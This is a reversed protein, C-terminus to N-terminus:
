CAGREKSPIVKVWFSCGSAGSDDNTYSFPVHYMGDPPIIVPYPLITNAYPSSGDLGIIIIESITLSLTTSPNSVPIVFNITEGIPIDFALLPISNVPANPYNEPVTDNSGNVGVSVLPLYSSLIVNSGNIEQSFTFKLEARSTVMDNNVASVEIVTTDGPDLIIGITVASISFTAPTYGGEARSEGDFEVSILTVPYSSTNTIVCSRDVQVDFVNTGFDVTTSDSSLIEGEYANVTIPWTWFCTQGLSNAYSLVVEAETIGVVTPKPNLTATLVTYPEISAVGPTIIGTVETTFDGTVTAGYVNTPGYDSALITVALFGGVTPTQINYNLTTPPCGICLYWGNSDVESTCKPVTVPPTMAGHIGVLSQTAM